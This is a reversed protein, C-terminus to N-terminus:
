PESRCGYGARQLVVGSFRRCYASVDGGVPQQLPVKPEEPTLTLRALAICAALRAFVPTEMNVHTFM